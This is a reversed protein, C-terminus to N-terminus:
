ETCSCFAISKWNLDLSLPSRDEGDSEDLVLAENSCFLYVKQVKTFRNDISCM